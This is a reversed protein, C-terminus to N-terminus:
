MEDIESMESHSMKKSHLSILATRMDILVDKLESMTESQTVIIDQLDESSVSKKNQVRMKVPLLPSHPTKGNKQNISHNVTRGNTRYGRDRVKLIKSRIELPRQLGILRMEPSGESNSVTKVQIETVDYLRQVWGQQIELDTIKNL